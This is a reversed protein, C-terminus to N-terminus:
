PAEAFGRITCGAGLLGALVFGLPLWLVLAILVIVGLETSTCGRFIPPEGNLREACLGDERDM